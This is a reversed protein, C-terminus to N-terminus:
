HVKIAESNEHVAQLDNLEIKYLDEAKLAGLLAVALIDAHPSIVLSKALNLIKFTEKWSRSGNQIEDYLRLYTLICFLPPSTFTTERSIKSDFNIFNQLIEANIDQAQWARDDERLQFDFVLAKKGYYNSVLEASAKLMSTNDLNGNERLAQLWTNRQELVESWGMLLYQNETIAKPRMAKEIIANVFTNNKLITPDICAVRKTLYSIARSTEMIAHQVLWKDWMQEASREAIPLQYSTLKKAYQDMTPTIELIAELPISIVNILESTNITSSIINWDDKLNVIVRGRADELKMYPATYFIDSTIKEQNILVRTTLTDFHRRSVWQALESESICILNM